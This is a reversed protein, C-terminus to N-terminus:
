IGTVTIYLTAAAVPDTNTLSLVGAATTYDYSLVAVAAAAKFLTVSVISTIDTLYSTLDIDGSTDGSIMTVTCCIMKPGGQLQSNVIITPTGYAM